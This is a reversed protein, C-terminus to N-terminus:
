GQPFIPAVRLKNEWRKNMGMKKDVSPLLSFRPVLNSQLKTKIFEIPLLPRPMSKYPQWQGARTIHRQAHTLYQGPWPNTYTVIHAGQKLNILNFKCNYYLVM